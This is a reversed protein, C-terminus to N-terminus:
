GPMQRLARTIRAEDRRAAAAFMRRLRPQATVRAVAELREGDHPERTVGVIAAAAARRRPPTRPDEIARWLADRQDGASRYAGATAAFRARVDALWLARDGVREPIPFAPDDREARESAERMARLGQLIGEAAPQTDRDTSGGAGYLVLSRGGARQFVLRAASAPAVRFFQLQEWTEVRVHTGTISAHPLWGGMGLWRWHIGDTGFTLRRRSAALVLGMVYWVPCLCILLVALAIEGSGSPNSNEVASV